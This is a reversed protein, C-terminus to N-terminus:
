SCVEDAQDICGFAARPDRCHLDLFLDLTIFCHIAAELDVEELSDGEASSPIVSCVRLLEQDLCRGPRGLCATRHDGCRRGNGLHVNPLTDSLGHRVGGVWAAQLRPCHIDLESRSSAARLTCTNREHNPARKKSVRQGSNTIGISFTPGLYQSSVGFCPDLTVETSPYIAIRHVSRTSKLPGRSADM